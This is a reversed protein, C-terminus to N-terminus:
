SRRPSHPIVDIPYIIPTLYMWVLFLLGMFHEIDRFYVNLASFTLGMGLAFMATIAIILLTVPTFLLARWNGFGVLIVLLLGMEIFHSVLTAAVTAAPLLERPFYTKKILPGSGVLTSVSGTVSLM